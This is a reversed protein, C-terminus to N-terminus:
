FNVGVNIYFAGNHTSEFDDRGINALGWEYAIDGYLIQYQIGCGIRIGGDFRKFYDDSFSEEKIKEDYRKVTGGVGVALYGGLLPQISIDNSLDFNYKILLPVELYNLNFHVEGIDDNKDRRGGKQTYYLGTEFYVPAVRTLQVGFVAGVNVGARSTPGDWRDVDSNLTSLGLGLRFGYYIDTGSNSTKTYTSNHYENEQPRGGGYYQASANTSIILGAIAALMFIKKSM